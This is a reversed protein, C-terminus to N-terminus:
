ELAQNISQNLVKIYTKSYIVKSLVYCKILQSDSNYLHNWCFYGFQDCDVLLGNFVLISGQETVFDDNESLGFNPQSCIYSLLM